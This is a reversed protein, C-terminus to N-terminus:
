DKSIQWEPTRTPYRISLTVMAHGSPDWRQTIKHEYEDREHEKLQFCAALGAGIDRYTVDLKKRPFIAWPAVASLSELQGAFILVSRPHDIWWLCSFSQLSSSALAAVVECSICAGFPKLRAADTSSMNGVPIVYAWYQILYRYFDM